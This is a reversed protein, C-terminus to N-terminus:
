HLLNESVARAFREWTFMAARTRGALSFKQHTDPDTLLQEMASALAPVDDPAVVLAAEGAVESLAGATTTIVPTGVAFAELVPLGFGEFRSPFIFCRANAYLAPLHAAPVFGLLRVREGLSLERILSHVPTALPNTENHLTGTLILPPIEQGRQHHDLLYRYARLVGETNKRVEFGGGHYLYGPELQYRDLIDTKEQADPERTFPTPVGLPAVSLSGTEKGLFRRVDQATAQSPTIIATASRMARRTVAHYLQQQLTGRYEPFREPVLDHVVM